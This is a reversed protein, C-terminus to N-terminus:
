MGPGYLEIWKVCIDDRSFTIHASGQPTHVMMGYYSMAIFSLSAYGREDGASGYLDQIEWKKLETDRAPIKAFVSEISDGIKIDRFIRVDMADETVNIYNLVLVGSEDLVFGYWVEDCEFSCYEAVPTDAAYGTLAAVEAFTMGFRVGNHLVMEDGQVRLSYDTCRVVQPPEVVVPLDGAGDQPVEDQVVADRNDADTSNGGVSDADAACGGLALLALLVTLVWFKKM